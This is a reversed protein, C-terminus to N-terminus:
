ARAPAHSHADSCEDRRLLRAALMSPLMGVHELTLLAGMDTVAGAVLLAIVGVTASPV